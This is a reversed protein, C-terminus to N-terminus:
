RDAPGGDCECANKAAAFSRKEAIWLRFRPSVGKALSGARDIWAIAEGFKGARRLFEGAIYAIHVRNKEDAGKDEFAKTLWGAARARQGALLSTRGGGSGGSGRSNKLFPTAWM